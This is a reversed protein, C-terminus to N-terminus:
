LQCNGYKTTSHNQIPIFLKKKSKEVFLASLDKQINEAIGIAKYKGKGVKGILFVNVRRKLLFQSLTVVAAAKYNGSKIPPVRM